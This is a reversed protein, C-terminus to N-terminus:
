RQANHIFGYLLQSRQEGSLAGGPDLRLAVPAQLIFEQFREFFLDM